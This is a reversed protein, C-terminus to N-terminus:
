ESTKSIPYFSLKIIRFSLVIFAFVGLPHTHFSEVINGHLLFSISRGLGCGTCFDLGLNHLLCLSFAKEKAPDIFALFLIGSVWVLAEKNIRSLLKKLIAM